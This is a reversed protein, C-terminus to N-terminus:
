QKKSVEKKLLDLAMSTILEKHQEVLALTRKYASDVFQRV